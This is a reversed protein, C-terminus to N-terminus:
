DLTEPVRLNARVDPPLSNWLQQLHSRKKRWDAIAELLQETLPVSTLRIPSKLAAVGTRSNPLEKIPAFKWADARLRTGTDTLAGLITALRDVLSQARRASVELAAYAELYAATANPIRERAHHRILITFGLACRAEIRIRKRSRALPSKLGPGYRAHAAEIRRIL